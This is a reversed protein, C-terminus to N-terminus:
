IFLGFKVHRLHGYFLSWLDDRGIKSLLISFIFICVLNLTRVLTIIFIVLMKSTVIHLKTSLRLTSGGTFKKENLKMVQRMDLSEFSGPVKNKVNV